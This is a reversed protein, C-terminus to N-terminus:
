CFTINSVIIKRVDEIAALIDNQEMRERKVKCKERFFSLLKAGDIKNHTRINEDSYRLMWKYRPFIHMHFHSTEEGFNAVYVKEVADNRKLAMIALKMVISMQLIEIKNLDNYYEVHRVPSLVLYGPINIDICHHLIVDDDQYIIGGVPSIKGQMIDCTLCM